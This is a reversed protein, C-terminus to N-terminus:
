SRPVTIRVLAGGSAGRLVQFRGRPGYMQQLRARVNAIGIGRPEADLTFGRGNDVVDLIVDDRDTFARVTVQGGGHRVANEVIPQLIFNPVKCDLAEPEVALDIELKDGFRVLQIDAYRRVMGMEERVSVEPSGATDLSARLLESVRTLTKDAADVDEHMLESIGHLANFLFHPQIQARLLEIRAKALSLEAERHARYTDIAKTVGVIAWYAAISVPLNVLLSVSRPTFGSRRLLETTAAIKLATIVVSLVLHIAVGRPTMPIRRAIWAILPSLLAWGYWGAFALILAQGVDIPHGSYSADMRLQVAFLLALVTWAGLAILVKKM